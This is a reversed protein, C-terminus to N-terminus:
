NCHLSFRGAIIATQLKTCDINMALKATLDGLRQGCNTMMHHHNKRWNRNDTQHDFPEKEEKATIAWTRTGCCLIPMQNTAPESTVLDSEPANGIFNRKTAAV